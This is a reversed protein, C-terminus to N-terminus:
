SSRRLGTAVDGYRATLMPRDGNGLLARMKREILEIQRRRDRDPEYSSGHMFLLRKEESMVRDRVHQDRLYVTSARTFLMLSPKFEPCFYFAISRKSIDLAVLSAEDADGVLVSACGVFTRLVAPLEETRRADLHFLGEGWRHILEADLAINCAEELV